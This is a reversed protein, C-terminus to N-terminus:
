KSPWAASSVFSGSPKSSVHVSKPSIFSDIFDEESSSDDDVVVNRKSAIPHHHESVKISMRDEDDDVEEESDLSDLLAIGVRLQEDAVFPDEVVPLARSMPRDISDAATGGHLHLTSDSVPISFPSEFNSLEDDKDESQNRQSLLMDNLSVTRRGASHVGDRRVRHEDEQLHFGRISYPAVRHATDPVPEKLRETEAASTKKQFGQHVTFHDPLYQFDFVDDIEERPAFASHRENTQDNPVPLTSKFDAIMSDLQTM